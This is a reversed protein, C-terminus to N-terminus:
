PSASSLEHHIRRMYAANVQNWAAIYRDMCQSVCTEEKSSISSGPKTICSEFCHQNMNDILQRATATNSEILIRQIIAKKVSDTDMSGTPAAAPTAGAPLTDPSAADKSKSFFM